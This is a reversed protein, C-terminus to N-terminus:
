TEDPVTIASAQAQAGIANEHSAVTEYQPPPEGAESEEGAVLRAFQTNRRYLSAVDSPIDSPLPSLPQGPTSYTGSLPTHVVESIPSEVHTEFPHLFAHFPGHHTGSGSAVPTTAVPPLVTMAENEDVNTGSGVRRQICPCTQAGLISNLALSSYRPLSTWESNCRCSLIHLPTQVVIDFHKRRGTKADVFEDDGREVRFVIKLLHSITINSRKHKNTFHMKSCSKPLQLSAQISWPGPGMLSSAAESEDEADVYGHLPSTSYDSSLPLIPPSDKEPFRISLLEFKRTADSRAIKKFQTYYDVKEELYASIRFIKVKAIPMFTLHIPISSGIPFARGSIIIMYHMQSDWERQVVINDSEDIDDEGPCAIFTVERTATLRHTFAGPRHVTAKLSYGVTGFDCQLSPPSDGPIAFSIPYTYTGKKFEKWGEGEGSAPETHIGLVDTIRELTSKEKEKQKAHENDRLTQRGREVEEDVSHDVLGSRVHSSRHGEPSHERSATPTFAREKGERPRSNSRVREKVADLLVNSVMALSFRAHRRGRDRHPSASDIHHENDTARSPSALISSSNNTSNDASTDVSDHSPAHRSALPSTLATSVSPTRSGTQVGNVHTTPIYSRGRSANRDHISSDHEDHSERRSLPIDAISSSSSHPESAERSLHNPEPHLDTRSAASATSTWSETRHALQPMAMPISQNSDAARISGPRTTPPSYPPTPIDNFSSHPIFQVDMSVRRRSDRQWPPTPMGLLQSRHAADESSGVEEEIEEHDFTLGPGVSATRRASATHTKGARFYVTTASFIEHEETVELRRAGAGEPWSTQSKGELTIEISSIKTPKDLNLTLLGRLMAPQAERTTRRGTVTTEASGRLFVVSETLRIDLNNKPAM